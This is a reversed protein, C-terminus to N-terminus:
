EDDGLHMSQTVDIDSQQSDETEDKEEEEQPHEELYKEYAEEIEELKKDRLEQIDSVADSHKENLQDVVEQLSQPDEALLEVFSRKEELLVADMRAKCEEYLSKTAETLLDHRQKDVPPMECYVFRSDADDEDMQEITMIFEPHAEFIGQQVDRLVDMHKPMVALHFDDMQVVQAVEEINQERSGVTVTVPLLSMPDAKVCLNSYRFTLLYHYSGLKKEFSKIETESFKNM